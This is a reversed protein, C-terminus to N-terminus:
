NGAVGLAAAGAEVAALAEPNDALALRARDLALAAADPQNLVMRSRMLKLWGDPDDPAETLRADLQDVMGQIMAARDEPLMAEATAVDAATPGGTGAGELAATALTEPVATLGRWPDIRTGIDIGKAAALEDIRQVVGPVWDAGTQPAAEVLAIWAEIAAAADGAQELAMGKFFAARPDSPDLKLAADFVKLAEGTVLGNASRVLVEGYASWVEPRSADRTVAEGYATAADAYRETQFYSWGLMRWGEADDPNEKLRAALTSIVEEVSGGAKPAGAEAVAGTRPAAATESPAVTAPPVAVPVEPRGLYAYLGIAGAVVWGSAAAIALPRRRDSLPRPATEVQRMDVLVRREIEARAEAAEAAGIVGRAQEAAVEAVQDRAVALRRDRDGTGSEIRRILPVAVLVAAASTIATLVAWLIM